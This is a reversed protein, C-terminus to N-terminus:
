FLFFVFFFFWPWFKSYLFPIVPPFNLFFTLREVGVCRYEYICLHMSIYFLFFGPMVHHIRHQPNLSCPITYPPKLERFAKSISLAWKSPCKTTKWSLQSLFCFRCLGMSQQALPLLFVQSHSNSCIDVCPLCIVKQGWACSQPQLLYPSWLELPALESTPRSTDQPSCVVLLWFIKPQKRLVLADRSWSTEHCASPVVTGEANPPPNAAQNPPLHKLISWANAPNQCAKLEELPLPWPWCLM